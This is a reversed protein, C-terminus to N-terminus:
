GVKPQGRRVYRDLAGFARLSVLSILLYIAAAVTYFLFYWKTGGAAQQTIKTLELYGVVSILASDKTANLWLNSLGPIAFPLMAPLTIRRFLLFPSMGYAKAAEIQGIPIAQIAGRLVETSYAGQVVGLVAVAAVFGNIRVPGYGMGVLVNNIAQTGTYYLIVILVLEPVSRVITTYGDLLQRTLKGGTLKGIAGFLGIGLGLLYALASIQLTSIAGNFLNRGWGPPSWALLELGSM